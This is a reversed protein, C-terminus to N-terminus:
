DDDFPHWGNHVDLKRDVVCKKQDILGAFNGNLTNFMVGYTHSYERYFTKWRDTENGSTSWSKTVLLYDKHDKDDTPNKGIEFKYNDLDDGHSFFLLDRTEPDEIYWDDIDNRKAEEEVVKKLKEQLCKDEYITKFKETTDKFWNIKGVIRTLANYVYEDSPATIFNHPGSHDIILCHYTDIPVALDIKGEIHIDTGWRKDQKAEVITGRATKDIFRNDNALVVTVERGVLTDVKDEKVLSKLEKIPITVRNIDRYQTLYMPLQTLTQKHILKGSWKSMENPNILKSKLFSLYFSKVEDMMGLAKKHQGIFYSLDKFNDYNKIELNRM